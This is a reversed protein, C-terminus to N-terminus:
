IAFKTKGSGSKSGPEDFAIALKGFNHGVKAVKGAPVKGAKQVKALFSANFADRSAMAVKLEARYKVLLKKDAESLSGEDVEHWTLKESM